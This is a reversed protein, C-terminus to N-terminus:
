RQSPLPVMTSAGCKRKKEEEQKGLILAAGAAILYALYGREGTFVTWMDSRGDDGGNSGSGDGDAQGGTSFTTEAFFMTLQVYYQQMSSTPTSTYNQIMDQLVRGYNNPAFFVAMFVTDASPSIDNDAMQHINRESPLSENTWTPYSGNETDLQVFETSSYTMNDYLLAAGVNLDYQESIAQTHDIKDSWLTCRGGRQILAISPQSMMSPSTATNGNFSQIDSITTEACGDGFDLLLRKYISRQILTCMCMYLVCLEDHLCGHGVHGPWGDMMGGVEEEWDAGTDVCRLCM